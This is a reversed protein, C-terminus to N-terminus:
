RLSVQDLLRALEQARHQRSHTRIVEPSAILGTRRQIQDLFDVLGNAIAHTSDIPVIMGVKSETLVAATDGAADVMAFIPRRARIYEYLKAPIAPNSTYGQFLLLGHVSLMEAIAQRYPVSPELFVIDEVRHKRTLTRYHDAHGSARLVVKLSAPSVRGARRLNAIAEFFATPDRDPTPYLLGSHLLIVPKPPPPVAIQHADAFIDEDYGNAILTWRDQPVEMYREAYMRCASPTTFVARTSSHVARDEVWRRARWLAPDTPYNQKTLADVEIMPDRFDAVWPIRTLRHLAWGILHASAIPYTSWLVQPRYRRILNLGLPVACLCWTVWSDPLALWGVYRGQVALHRKTDLAFVRTVPVTPPIDRLQDDSTQPYAKPHVTLVLPQWGYGPLFKSFSLTRQQGSSGTCPPYHFAIMLVRKSM